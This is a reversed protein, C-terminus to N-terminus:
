DLVRWARIPGSAPLPALWAPPTGDVLTQLLSNKRYALLRPLDTDGLCLALYRVGREKIRAHAADPAATLTELAFRNGANNRHYPASVVDHDTAVLIRPGLRLPALVLGQPESALAAMDERVGCSTLSIAPSESAKVAHGVASWPYPLSCVVALLIVCTSVLARGARNKDGGLWSLARDVPYLWGFIAFLSAFSAGRMEVLALALGMSTFAFLLLFDPRRRGERLAATLLGLWGVTPFALFYLFNEPNQSVLLPLPKAEGVGELWLERVLPDIDALPGALVHPWVAIFAASVIAGAGVTFVARRLRSPSPASALLVLAGGGGAAMWLWPLSLADSEVVGWRSPAVTAAFLLLTSLAFTAGFVAVIRRSPAGEIIFALGFLGAALAVLPVAELGIALSVASVVGAAVAAGPRKEVIARITAFGLLLVLLMQTGHHDIRGPLLQFQLIPNLAVMAAAALSVPPPFVRAALRLITLVLAALLVLPWVAIVIREALGRDLTASLARIAAAMPLEILRSWHSLMGTPPDVRHETMDFWSQGAMWDRMEVLRMADDNDFLTGDRVTKIAMPVAATAIIALALLWAVLIPAFGAPRSEARTQPSASESLASV